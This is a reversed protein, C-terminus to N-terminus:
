YGCDGMRRRLFYEMACEKPCKAMAEELFKQFDPVHIREGSASPGRIPLGRELVVFDNHMRFITCARNQPYFLTVAYLRGERHCNNPLTPRSAATARKVGVALPIHHTGNYTNHHKHSHIQPKTPLPPKPSPKSRM